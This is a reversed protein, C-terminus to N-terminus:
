PVDTTSIEILTLVSGMTMTAPIIDIFFELSVMPFRVRSMEDQLV